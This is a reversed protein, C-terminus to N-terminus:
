HRASLGGIDQNGVVAEVKRALAKECVGLYKNVYPQAIANELCVSNLYWSKTARHVIYIFLLAISFLVVM